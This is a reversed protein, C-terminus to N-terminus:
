GVIERVYEKAERLGKCDPLELYHGNDTNLVIRWYKRNVSVEIVFGKYSWMRNKM